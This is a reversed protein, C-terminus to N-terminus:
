KKNKSSFDLNMLVRIVGIFRQDFLAAKDVVAGLIGILTPIRKYTYAETYLQRRARILLVRYEHPLVDQFANMIEYLEANVKEIETTFLPLYKKYNEESYDPVQQKLAEWINTANFNKLHGVSIDLLVNKWGHCALSIELLVESFLEKPNENKNVPLLKAKVIERWSKNYMLILDPGLRRSFAPNTHAESHCNLCLVALNNYSNNSPDSDVHHIQIKIKELRCVCCTRDSDFMVKTALDDPISIRSKKQKM